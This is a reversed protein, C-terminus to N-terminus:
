FLFFLIHKFYMCPHFPRSLPHTVKTQKWTENIKIYLGNPNETPHIAPRSLISTPPSINKAKTLNHGQGGHGERRSQFSRGCLRSAALAFSDLLASLTLPSPVNTQTGQWFDIKKSYRAGSIPHSLPISPMSVLLQMSSTAINKLCPFTM